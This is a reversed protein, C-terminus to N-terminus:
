GFVLTAADCQKCNAYQTKARARRLCHAAVAEAHQGQGRLQTVANLLGRREDPTKTQMNRTFRFAFAQEWRLGRAAFACAYAM